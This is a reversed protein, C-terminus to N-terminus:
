EKCNSELEETEAPTMGNIIFERENPHLNGLVNQIPEGYKMRMHQELTITLIYERKTIPCDKSYHVEEGDIVCSAKSVGAMKRMEEQFKQLDNM